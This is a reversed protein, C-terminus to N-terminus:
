QAAKGQSIDMIMRTALYLRPEISPLLIYEASTTHSGFGQLGFGEVVPTKTKLGAYAADTGGGGPEKPIILKKGMEAYVKQAHEALARSVATAQLPPRNREFVLEVQSSPLLKNKIRERLKQEIGDLDEMRLVRVNLVAQASPPIMNRVIGGNALTFNARLGISPDSLDRNQLIQHALEDVANVGLHPASGSHAARGTVIITANASGSTALSVRDLDPPGGGEFSMTADHEIGLKVIVDRSGPSGIEEDGNILVTLTGYDRFKM